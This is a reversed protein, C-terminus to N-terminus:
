RYCRTVVPCALTFHQSRRDGDGDMLLSNRIFVEDDEISGIMRLPAAMSIPRASIQTATTKKRRGAAESACAIGVSSPESVRMTIGVAVLAGVLVMVGLAVGVVASVGVVAACVAVVPGVAVVAGVVDPTCAVCGGRGVLVGTGGVEAGDDERM